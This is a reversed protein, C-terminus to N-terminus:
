ASVVILGSRKEYTVNKKGSMDPFECKKNENKDYERDPQDETALFWEYGFCNAYVKGDDFAYAYDTTRSNNWPWPWGNAPLTVDDRGNGFFKNVAVLYEAKTAALLIEGDIGSPYGDFAISGLWEADKGRGVYFDARTGM